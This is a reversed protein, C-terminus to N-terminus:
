KPAALNQVVCVASGRLQCGAPGLHIIKDIAFAKSLMTTRQSPVIRSHIDSYRTGDSSSTTRQNPGVIGEFWVPM